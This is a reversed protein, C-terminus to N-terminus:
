AFRHTGDPRSGDTPRHPYEGTTWPHVTHDMARRHRFADEAAAEAPSGIRDYLGALLMAMGMLYSAVCTAVSFNLLNAPTQMLGLMAVGAALFVIGGVLNVWHAFRHGLVAASLVVGGVLISLLAFAPNTRLGLAWLDARSFLPEGWSAFLGVVGFAFVYGGVIGAFARFVERLPHNVPMHLM